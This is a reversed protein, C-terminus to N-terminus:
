VEYQIMFLGGLFASPPTFFKRLIPSTIYYPM